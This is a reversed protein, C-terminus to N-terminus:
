GATRRGAERHVTGHARAAAVRPVNQAPSQPDCPGLLQLACLCSQKWLLQFLLEPSGGPLWLPGVVLGVTRGCEADSGARWPLLLLASPAGSRKGQVSLVRGCEKLFRQARSHALEQAGATLLQARLM